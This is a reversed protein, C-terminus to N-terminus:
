LLFIALAVGPTFALGTDGSGPRAELRFLSFTLDARTGPSLALATGVGAEVAVQFLRLTGGEDGAPEQELRAHFFGPAVYGYFSSGPTFRGAALRLGYDWAYGFLSSRSSDGELTTGLVSARLGARLQVSPWEYLAGADLGAGVVTRFPEPRSFAVQLQPGLTLHFGGQASATGPALALACLLALAAPFAPRFPMM